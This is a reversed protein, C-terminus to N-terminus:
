KLLIAQRNTKLSARICFIAALSFVFLYLGAAAAHGTTKYLWLSIFSTPSGIAQSGLAYGLSLITYRKEAPVQECAWAHYPASFAVGAIVFLCRIVVVVGFTASDLLYFCPLGFIALFLASSSMLRDKGYRSAIYGCLPLILMDFVLLYSNIRMVETKTLTTVLPLFGNMMTIAVAYTIHSYGAVVMIALLPGLYEKMTAILPAKTPKPGVLIDGQSFRLVLGFLATLSGGWFLYRWAEDINGMSSFLTVLSSALLIGAITSADYISSLLSQKEKKTNELVYIAGGVTEGAMCFSQLMRALALLCPAVIGVDRYLPLFGIGMTVIAMGLLSLSLAQRRGFTDGIWGFFISGLPKTLMGLPLMGYTMILSTLPDSDAFFLPALFPALFGFLANDYHELVNGVIGAVQRGSARM